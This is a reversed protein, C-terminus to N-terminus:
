RCSPLIGSELVDLRKKLALATERTAPVNVPILEDVPRGSEAAAVWQRMETIYTRLAESPTRSEDTVLYAPPIDGVISWLCEDVGETAPVIRFFFVAIVGGIGYGFYSDKISNCWDFARIFAKAQEAMNNLLETDADSDGSMESLPVVSSLDIDDNM